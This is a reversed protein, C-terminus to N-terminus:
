PKPGTMKMKLTNQFAAILWQEGEKVITLTMISGNNPPLPSNGTMDGHLHAIIVGKTERASLVEYKMQTDKYITKLIAGHGRANAVRTRHHDGRIDVFDCDDTFVSAFLEGNATNWGRQLTDAIASTIAQADTTTM